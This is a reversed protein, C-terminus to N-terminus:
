IPKLNNYVVLKANFDAVLATADELIENTFQIEYYLEKLELRLKALQAVQNAEIFEAEFIRMAGLTRQVLEGGVIELPCVGFQNAPIDNEALILNRESEALLALEAEDNAWTAWQILPKAAIPIAKYYNM